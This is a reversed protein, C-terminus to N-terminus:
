GEFYKLFVCKKRMICKRGGDGFRGTASVVRRRFPPASDSDGFRCRRVTRSRNARHMSDIWLFVKSDLETLRDFSASVKKQTHRWVFAFSTQVYSGSWVSKGVVAESRVTTRHKTLKSWNSSQSLIDWNFAQSQRVNNTFHIAYHLHISYAKSFLFNHKLWLILWDGFMLGLSWCRKALATLLM